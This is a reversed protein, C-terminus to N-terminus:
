PAGRETLHECSWRLAVWLGPVSRDGRYAAGDAYPEYRLAGCWVDVLGRAELARVARQTARVQAPTPEEADYVATALERVTSGCPQGHEKIPGGVSEWVTMGGFGAPATGLYTLISAQVRGLGNTDPHYQCEPVYLGRM